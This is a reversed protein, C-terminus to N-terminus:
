TTDSLSCNRTIFYLKLSPSNFFSQKARLFNWIGHLNSSILFFLKGKVSFTPTWLFYVKWIFKKWLTRCYISNELRLWETMSDLPPPVMQTIWPTGRGTLPLSSCGRGTWTMNPWTRYLPSERPLVLNCGKGDHEPTQLRASYWSCHALVHACFLVFFMITVVFHNCSVKFKQVNM